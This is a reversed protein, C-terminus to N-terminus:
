PAKETRTGVTPFCARMQPRFLAEVNVVKFERKLEADCAIEFLFAITDCSVGCVIFKQLLEIYVTTLNLVFCASIGVVATYSRPVRCNLVTTTPACCDIFHYKSTNSLAFTRDFTM